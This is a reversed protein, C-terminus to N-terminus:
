SHTSLFGLPPTFDSRFVLIIRFSHQERIEAHERARIQKKPGFVPDFCPGFDGGSFKASEASRTMWANADDLM